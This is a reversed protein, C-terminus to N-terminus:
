QASAVVRDGIIERDKLVPMFVKGDDRLRPQWKRLLTKFSRGTKKGDKFEAWRTSTKNAPSWWTLSGSEQDLSWAAKIKFKPYLVEYEKTGFNYRVVNALETMISESSDYRVFGKWVIGGTHGFHLVKSKRDYFARYFLSSDSIFTDPMTVNHVRNAGHFRAVSTMRFQDLADVRLTGWEGQNALPMPIDEWGYSYCKDSSKSCVPFLVLAKDTSCNGLHFLVNEGDALFRAQVRGSLDDLHNSAHFTRISKGKEDMIRVWDSIESVVLWHRNGVDFELDFGRTVFQGDFFIVDEKWGFSGDENPNGEFEWCCGSRGGERSAVVLSFKEIEHGKWSMHDSREAYVVPLNSRYTPESDQWNQSTPFQKGHITVVKTTEAGIASRNKDPEAAETVSGALVILGLVLVFWWNQNKM